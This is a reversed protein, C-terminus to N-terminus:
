RPGHPGRDLEHAEAVVAFVQGESHVPSLTVDLRRQGGRNQPGSPLRLTAEAHWTKGAMVEALAEDLDAAVDAASDAAFFPLAAFAVGLPELDAPLLARGARNMAQVRGDPGLLAMAQRAHEFVTRFRAESRRLEAEATKRPRLDRLNASFVLGRDTTVKTISAELPLEEGGSTIGCIEARQGILRSAAPAGAFAQMLTAHSHRYRAPLLAALPKGLLGGAPFEFLAEASPNAYIIRSDEDVHLISDASTALVRAALRHASRTRYQRAQEETADVLMVLYTQPQTPLPGVRVRVPKDDGNRDRCWLRVHALEPAQPQEAWRRLWVLPNLRSREQEPLFDVVNGGAPTCNTALLDNAAHNGTLIWGDRDIVLAPDPLAELLAAAGLEDFSM